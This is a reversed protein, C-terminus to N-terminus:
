MYLTTKTESFNFLGLPTAMYLDIVAMTILHPCQHPQIEFNQKWNKGTLIRLQIKKEKVLKIYTKVHEIFNYFV